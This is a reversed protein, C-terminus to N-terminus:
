NQPMFYQQYVAWFRDDLKENGTFFGRLEQISNMSLYYSFYAKINEDEGEEPPNEEKPYLVIVANGLVLPKSPTNLPTSFATQWFNLNGSADNDNLEPISFSYLGPFFGLDGYNLAAPGFTFKGLGKSYVAEDFGNVATDNILEEAQSIFWADVRGREFGMVYSRIKELTAPDSTDAPYSGDEARFFAWGSGTQLLDSIEGKALAILGERQQADTIETSLEYVLRLGMDGGREAYSDQSQTRAAEEFTLTGDKVSSLVQRAERESSNITIRSLHASRFNGPNQEAYAIIEADPYSSVSFAAGDFTRRLAGMGVIFDEEGSSRLLDAMDSRYREEIISEQVQRWLTMRSTNDLQRYRAASFRGNEHFVPLSAVEEDVLEEPASYGAKKMEQLIGIHEVTQEFSERWIRIDTLQYNGDSLSNQENRILQERIGAFYNGPVYTIPIKDYSGFSLEGGWGGGASPVIAPVFVFAVIVIVLIVVTFIFVAPNAKFRRIIEEKSSLDEQVPQKKTKNAM